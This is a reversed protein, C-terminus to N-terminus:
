PQIRMVLKGHNHGSTARELIGGSKLADKWDRTGPITEWDPQLPPSLQLQLIRAMQAAQDLRFGARCSSFVTETHVSGSKFFIFGLDLSQIGKGAVVLCIQGFPALVEALARAISSTPETLCLIHDVIGNRGAPLAQDIQNHGIVRSAGLREICWNKTDTNTPTSSTIIIELQPYVARALLTAWSGVGGSGGVILLTKGEGKKDNISSPSTIDDKLSLGVKELAEYATNGAVPLCALEAMDLPSASPVITVLRYDVCVHTAYSGDKSSDCLLVVKDGISFSEAPVSDGMAQVFGSGGYGVILRGNPTPTGEPKATLKHGDVPNVDSYAVQILMETPAPTPLPLHNHFKLSTMPPCFETAALAMFNPSPRPPTAM